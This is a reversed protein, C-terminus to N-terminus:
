PSGSNRDTELEKWPQDTMTDTVLTNNIFSEITWINIACGTEPFAHRPRPDSIRPCVVRKLGIKCTVPCANLVLTVSGRLCCNAPYIISCAVNEFQYYFWCIPETDLEWVESFLRRQESQCVASYHLGFLLWLVTLSMIFSSCMCHHPASPQGM